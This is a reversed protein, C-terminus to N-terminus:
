MTLHNFHNDNLVLSELDINIMQERSTTVLIAM